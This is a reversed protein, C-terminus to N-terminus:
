RRILAEIEELTADDLEVEAAEANSRVHDGNRSGVIASTVGPQALVWAIALQALDAGVKSAIPRLADVFALNDDLNTPGFLGELEVSRWDGLESISRKDFRGTLLGFALPGYAVVGTGNDGCWGIM